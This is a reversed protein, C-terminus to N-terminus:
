ISIFLLFSYYHVYYKWLWCFFHKYNFSFLLVIIICLIIILDYYFVILLYLELRYIFFYNCVYIIGFISFYESPCHTFYWHKKPCNSPPNNGGQLCVGKGKFISIFWLLNTKWIEYDMIPVNSKFNVWNEITFLCYPIIKLVLWHRNWWRVMWM